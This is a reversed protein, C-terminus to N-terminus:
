EAHPDKEKFKQLRIIGLVSLSANQSDIPRHMTTQKSMIRTIEGKVPM